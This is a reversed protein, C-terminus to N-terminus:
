QHQGPQMAKRGFTDSVCTGEPLRGGPVRNVAEARVTQPRGYRCLQTSRCNWRPNSAASWFVLERCVTEFGKQFCLPRGERSIRNTPDWGSINGTAQVGSGSNQEPSRTGRVQPSRELRGTCLRASMARWFITARGLFLLAPELAYQFAPQLADGRLLAWVRRAPFNPRRRLRGLCLRNKALIITIARGSHPLLAFGGPGCAGALPARPNGPCPTSADKIQGAGTTINDILNKGPGKLFTTTLHNLETHRTFLDYRLGLNLTMQRSVKWDDQVYAGVEWNRWHRISTELHCTHKRHIRSRSRCIRLPHTRRSSCLTSSPTCLRAVNFNSNELNRRV